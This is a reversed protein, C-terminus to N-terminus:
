HFRLKGSPRAPRHRWSPSTSDRSATTRSSPRAAASSGGCTRGGGSAVSRDGSRAPRLPTSRLSTSAVDAAYGPALVGTKLGLVQGGGATGWHIIDEVSVADASRRGHRERGEPRPAPVLRPAGRCSHRRSTPAAGDVGLSVPMGAAQMRPAPAIGSGLRCNAGPCHAIGTGARAMLEIESDSVHCLHAVLRGPRAM